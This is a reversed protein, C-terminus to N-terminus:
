RCLSGSSSAAVLASTSCVVAPVCTAGVVEQCDWPVPDREDRVVSFDWGSLEGVEGAITRLDDRTVPEMRM